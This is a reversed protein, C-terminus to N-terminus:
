ESRRWPEGGPSSTQQRAELTFGRPECENAALAAGVRARCGPPHGSEVVPRTGTLWLRSIWRPIDCCFIRIASLGGSHCLRKESVRQAGGVRRVALAARGRDLSARAARFGDVGSVYMRAVFGRGHTGTAWALRPVGWGSWASMATAFRWEARRVDVVSWGCGGWERRSTCPWAVCAGPRSNIKIDIINVHTDSKRLSM